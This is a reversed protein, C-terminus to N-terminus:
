QVVLRKTKAGYENSVTVFYVGPTLRSIDFEKVAENSNGEIVVRGQLDRVQVIVPHEEAENLFVKFSGQAPNPYVAFNDVPVVMVSHEKREKKHSVVISNSKSPDCILKLGDVRSTVSGNKFRYLRFWNLRSLDPTGGTNRATSFPLQVKNWGNSLVGSSINWNYENQDARGASGLEVQNSANLKSVDSVYYWFELVNHSRGDVSSLVKKFDDTGSGIAKISYSGEQKTGSLTLSNASSWGNISECPDVIKATCSGGGSNNQYSIVLQAPASGDYAEATRRGTGRIIFVIPNGQQWGSKNVLRNVLTALNPTRQAAGAEGTQNWAPINSWQVIGTWENRNTINNSSTSFTSAGVVDEVTISVTTSTSSTEDCTFQIYANNITAGAPVDVSSFRLGVVQNGQNLGVDDVMELDSSSLSMNGNTYQEADDSSKTVSSITTITGGSSPTGGIYVVDEGPAPMWVDMGSPITFRNADSLTGVSTANDVRITRSEIYNQDIFIWKVQNFSGTHRSWVKGDNNSRLPAGWCGEGMYVVGNADDRIFGEDSGSASSRRIPYTTKVTHADCEVAFDVGYNEFLPAWHTVLDNRESKSSVHPRMPHHYQASKWRVNQNAQLDSELWSKQSGSVSHLTNLTYARFLNGGFTLAYYVNSHPTDFLDYIVGNSGEHNGRTAVIPTMRGDPAITLQWDDFWERWEADTDGNTMDGGFLVANCRTKAVIRNANKRPTRNNRSDGGAIFSLRETSVNPSTRFSYRASTSNNDKIIFYYVTNPQLGTLRVFVNNMGKRSVSRSHGKSFAYASANTGRDVVDYYVQATSGDIQHWGITMTTAPNDRLICRYRGTTAWLNSYLCMILLICLNKM